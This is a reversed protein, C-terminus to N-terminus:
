STKPPNWGLGRITKGFEAIDAVDLSAMATTRLIAQGRAVTPYRIAPVHFGKEALGSALEM